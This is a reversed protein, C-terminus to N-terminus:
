DLNTNSSLNSEKTIRNVLPRDTSIKFSISELSKMWENLDNMKQLPLIWRWKASSSSLNNVLPKGRENLHLGVYNLISYTKHEQSTLLFM